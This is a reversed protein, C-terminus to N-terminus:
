LQEKFKKIITHAEDIAELYGDIYAQAERSSGLSRNVGISVGDPLEGELQSLTATFLSMVENVAEDTVWVGADTFEYYGEDCEFKILLERLKKAIDSAM